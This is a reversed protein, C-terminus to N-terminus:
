VGDPRETSWTKGGDVSYEVEETDADVRALIEGQAAENNEPVEKSNGNEDVKFTVGKEDEPTQQANPVTSAQSESTGVAPKSAADASKEASCASLGLIALACCAVVLMKCKNKM